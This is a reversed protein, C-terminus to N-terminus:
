HTSSKTKNFSPTASVSCFRAARPPSTPFFIGFLQLLFRPPSVNQFLVKALSVLIPEIAFQRGNFDGQSALFYREERELLLM